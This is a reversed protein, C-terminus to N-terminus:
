AAELERVTEGPARYSYYFDVVGTELLSRIAAAAMTGTVKEQSGGLAHLVDDSIGLRLAIGRHGMAVDGLDEALKGCLCGRKGNNWESYDFRLNADGGKEAWSALDTLTNTADSTLNNDAWAM